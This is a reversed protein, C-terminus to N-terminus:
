HDEIQVFFSYEKTQQPSESTTVKSSVRYRDGLSTTTAFLRLETNRSSDVISESDKTLATVGNQILATITFINSLITVGNGLNRSDFDFKVVKIDSPDFTVTEQVPITVISM